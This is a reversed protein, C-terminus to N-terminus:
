RRGLVVGEHAHPGIRPPPLLASAALPILLGAVREFVDEGYSRDFDVAGNVEIITYRGDTLPLVDVGVLDAEVAAAAARALVCAAPPPEVPRRTGGLAINTRWEGAAAVREIAGVVQGAAVVLRLDVALNPVLEQVLAGQRRFWRRRAFRRLCARLEEPDRCREVDRGWSGFRPKVVYPGGFSPSADPDGLLATRPHPLGARRLQLATQLKDHCRLLARTSNLVQLGQRELRRLEWFADGVGDLRRCVDARGLPVAGDLNGLLRAARLQAGGMRRVPVGADRFAGALLHNTGTGREAVIVLGRV